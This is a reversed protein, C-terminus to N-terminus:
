ASNKRGKKQLRLDVMLLSVKSRVAKKQPAQDNGSVAAVINNAKEEREEEEKEGESSSHVDLDQVPQTLGEPTIGNEVYEQVEKM